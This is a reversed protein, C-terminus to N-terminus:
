GKVLFGMQRLWSLYYLYVLFVFQGKTDESVYKM